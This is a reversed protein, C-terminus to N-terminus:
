AYAANGASFISLSRRVVRANIKIVQMVALCGFLRAARCCCCCCCLVAAAASGLVVAVVIPMPCMERCTECMKIAFPFTAYVVRIRM